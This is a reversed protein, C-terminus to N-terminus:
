SAFFKRVKMQADQRTSSILLAARVYSTRYPKVVVGEKSKSKLWLIPYGDAGMEINSLNRAKEAIQGDTSTPNNSNSFSGLENGIVILAVSLAPDSIELASADTRHPGESASDRVTFKKGGLDVTPFEFLSMRYAFDIARGSRPAASFDTAEMTTSALISSSRPTSGKQHWKKCIYRERLFSQSLVPTAARDTFNGVDDPVAHKRNDLKRSDPSVSISANRGNPFYRMLCNRIFRGGRYRTDGPM